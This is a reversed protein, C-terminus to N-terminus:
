SQQADDGWRFRKLSVRRGGSLEVGEKRLRRVQERVSGGDGRPAIEGSARLVRHWPISSGAPREGLLKGVLPAKCQARPVGAWVLLEVEGAELEGDSSLLQQKSFNRMSWCPCLLASAVTFAIMPTFGADTELAFDDGFGVQTRLM